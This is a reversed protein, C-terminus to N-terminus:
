NENYLSTVEMGVFTEALHDGRWNPSLPGVPLESLWEQQGLEAVRQAWIIGISKPEGHACKREFAVAGPSLPPWTKM